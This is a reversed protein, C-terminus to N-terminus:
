KGTSKMRINCASWFKPWTGYQAKLAAKNARWEAGCLKQRSTAPTTSAASEAAPTAATAPVAPAPTAPNSTSVVGATASPVNTPTAPVAASAAPTAEAKPTAEPQASKGVSCHSLFQPWTEGNLQNATKAAQYAESCQKMVTQALASPALACIAGALVVGSLVRKM